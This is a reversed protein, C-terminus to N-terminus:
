QQLAISLLIRERLEAPAPHYKLKACILQKTRLHSLFNKYCKYCTSLHDKVQVFLEGEIEEDIFSSIYKDVKKCNM